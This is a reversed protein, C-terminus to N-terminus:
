RNGGFGRRRSHERAEFLDASLERNERNFLDTGPFSDHRHNPSEQDKILRPGRIVSERTWAIFGGQPGDEGPPKLSIARRERRTETCNSPGRFGAAAARENTLSRSAQRGRPIEQKSM